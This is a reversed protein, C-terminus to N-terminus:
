LGVCMSGKYETIDGTSSGLILSNVSSGRYASYPIQPFLCNDPSGVCLTWGVYAVLDVIYVTETNYHLTVYYPGHIHSFDTASGSIADFFLQDYPATSSARTIDNAEKSNWNIASMGRGFQLAFLTKNDPSWQLLSPAHIGSGVVTSVLLSTMNISRINDNRVDAILLNDNNTNDLVASYPWNFRAARGIGDSLGRTTCEGALTGTRRDIRSVHRICNNNYDTVILTTKNWQYFGWVNGFMAGKGVGEKYGYSGNGAINTVNAGDTTNLSYLHSFVVNGELYRDPQCHFVAGFSKGVVATSKATM